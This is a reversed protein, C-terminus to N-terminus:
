PRRSTATIAWDFVAFVLAAVATFVGATKFDLIFSDWFTMPVDRNVFIRPSVVWGLIAGVVVVLLTRIPQSSFYCATGLVILTPLYLLLFLTLSRALQPFTVALALVVCLITVNILLRRITFQKAAM